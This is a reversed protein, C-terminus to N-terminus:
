LRSNQTHTRTSKLKSKWLTRSSFGCLFSMRIASGATFQQQRNQRYNSPPIWGEKRAYDLAKAEEPCRESSHGYEGCEECTMMYDTSKVEEREGSEMKEFRRMLSDIKGGLIEMKDVELVSKATGTSTHQEPSTPTVRDSGM